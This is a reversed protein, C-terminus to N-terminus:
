KKKGPFSFSFNFIREFLPSRVSSRSILLADDKKSNKEKRRCGFIEQQMDSTLFEALPVRTLVFVFEVKRRREQPKNLYLMLFILGM